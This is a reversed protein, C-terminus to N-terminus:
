TDVKLNQYTKDIDGLSSNFNYPNCVIGFLGKVHHCVDYEIGEVTKKIMSPSNQKEEETYNDLDNNFPPLNWNNSDASWVYVTNEEPTINDLSFNDFSVRNPFKSYLNNVHNDLYAMMLLWNTHKKSDDIINWKTQEELTCGLLHGKTGICKYKESNETNDIDETYELRDYFIKTPNGIIIIKRNNNGSLFANLLEFRSKIHPFLQSLFTNHDTDKIFIIEHSINLLSKYKEDALVYIDGDEDLLSYDELRTDFRDINYDLPQYEFRRIRSYLKSNFTTNYDDDNVLLELKNNSDINYAELEQFVNDNMSNDISDTSPTNFTRIYVGKFFNHRKLLVNPGIVENLVECVMDKLSFLGSDYIEMSDKDIIAISIKKIIMGDFLARLSYKIRESLLRQRSDTNNAGRVIKDCISEEKPDKDCEGETINPILGIFPTLPTQLKDSLVTYDLCWTKGYNIARSSNTNSFRIIPLSFNVAGGAMNSEEEVVEEDEEEDEEFFREYISQRNRDIISPRNKKTFINIIRRILKNYANLDDDNANLMSPIDYLEPTDILFGIGIRHPINFNESQGDFNIKQQEDYNINLLEIMSNFPTYTSIQTNKHEVHTTSPLELSPYSAVKPYSALKPYSAVKHTPILPRPFLPLLENIIAQREKNFKNKKNKTNQHKAKTEFKKIELIHNLLNYISILLNRLHNKDQNVHNTKKSKKKFGSKAGKTSKKPTLAKTSKKPTLAKTSKKLTLAKKATAKSHNIYDNDYGSNYGNNELSNGGSMSKVITNVNNTPLEDIITKLNLLLENLKNLSSNTINDVKKKLNSYFDCLDSFLVQIKPETEIISVLKPRNISSCNETKSYLKFGLIFLDGRKFISNFLKYGNTPKLKIFLGKLKSINLKKNFCENLINSFHLLRKNDVKGGVLKKSKKSRKNFKISKIYM